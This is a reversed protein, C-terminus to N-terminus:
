APWSEQDAVLKPAGEGMLHRSVRWTHHTVTNLWRLADLADLVDM